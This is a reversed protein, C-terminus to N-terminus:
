VVSKRDLVNKGPGGCFRLNQPPLLFRRQAYPKGCLPLGGFAFATAVVYRVLTRSSDKPRIAFAFPLHEIGRGKAISHVYTFIQMLNSLFLLLRAFAVGM